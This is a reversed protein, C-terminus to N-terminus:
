ISKERQIAYFKNTVIFIYYQLGWENILKMFHKKKINMKREMRQSTKKEKIRIPIKM